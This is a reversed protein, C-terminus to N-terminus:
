TAVNYSTVDICAALDYEYLRLQTKMLKLDFDGQFEGLINDCLAGDGDITDAQCDVINGVL